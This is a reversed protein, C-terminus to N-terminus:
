VIGGEVVKSLIGSSVKHCGEVGQFVVPSVKHCGEVGQFVM